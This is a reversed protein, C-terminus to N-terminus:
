DSGILLQQIRVFRSMYHGTKVLLSRDHGLQVMRSWNSGEGPPDGGQQHGLVLWVDRGRWRKEVEVSYIKILHKAQHDYRPCVGQSFSSWITVMDQDFSWIGQHGSMAVGGGRTLRSQVYISWIDKDFLWTKKSLDYERNGLLRAVFHGLQPGTSCKFIWVHQTLNTIEFNTEFWDFSEQLMLQTRIAKNVSEMASEIMGLAFFENLQADQSLYQKLAKHYDNLLQVCYITANFIFNNERRGTKAATAPNIFYKPPEIRIQISKLVNFLFIHSSFDKSEPHQYM